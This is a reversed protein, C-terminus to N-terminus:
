LHGSTFRGARHGHQVDECGQVAVPHSQSVPEERAEEFHIGLLPSGRGPDDSCHQVFM